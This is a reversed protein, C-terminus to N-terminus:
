WWGKASGIVWLLVCVPTPAGIGALLTLPSRPDRGGYLGVLLRLALATGKALDAHHVCVGDATPTELAEAQRKAQRILEDKAAVDENSGM